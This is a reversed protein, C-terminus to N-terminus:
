VHVAFHMEHNWIFSPSSIDHCEVDGDDLAFCSSHGAARSVPGGGAGHHGYIVLLIDSMDLGSGFEFIGHGFGQVDIDIRVDQDGRGDSSGLVGIQSWPLSDFEEPPLEEEACRDADACRSVGEFDGIDIQSMQGLYTEYQWDPIDTTTAFLPKM